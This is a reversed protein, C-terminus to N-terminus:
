LGKRSQWKGNVRRMVRVAGYRARFAPADERTRFFFWFNDDFHADFPLSGPEIATKPIVSWPREATLFEGWRKVIPRIERAHSRRNYGPDYERVLDTVKGDLVMVIGGFNNMDESVSTVFSLDPWKTALRQYFAAPYMNRTQMSFLAQTRTRVHGLVGATAPEHPDRKEGRRRPCLKDLHLWDAWEGRCQRTFGTRIFRDVATKRGVVHLDQDVWNAM